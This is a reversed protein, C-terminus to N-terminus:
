KHKKILAELEDVDRELGKLGAVFLDPSRVDLGISAFIDEPTASGGASLFADVDAMAAPNERVKERLARSILEGYAYSYVYFPNRFHGVMVFFYGDDDSLRVAKGLYQGTHKNLLRAIEEKPVWGESRVKRHLELEFNFFAIQRLITSIADQINDHLAIMKAKASLNQTVHEFVLGEFFTSATEAVATSCGFYFPPQTARSREFHIAHGMEHALTMTSNLDDVHNLLVQAPLQYSGACYAGGAKGKRPLVDIQGKELFSDLIDAYQKGAKAFAERTVQVAKPFPFKQSTTGVPASRDAYTLYPLNMMKRKLDYFRHGLYFHDTVADVLALVSKEENEYSLITKEYPEKFGRLEDNIKKDTFVANIESEAFDSAVKYQENLIKQLTRRDNADKLTRIKGIAENIPLKKGKFLVESRNVVADVGSVWMSRAPANKLALIREEAESLDHKATEFVRTLFYHYHALEKSALFKKQTAAPIKGLALGFFQVRNAAKTFREELKRIMAEAQSDHSNLDKKFWVYRLPKGDLADLDLKEYDALAQALATESKLYEKTDRYKKEFTEYAKEIAATDREIAPDMVGTYGYLAELNWKTKM